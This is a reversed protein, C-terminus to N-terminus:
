TVMRRRSAAFPFCFLVPLVLPRSGCGHELTELPPLRAYGAGVTGDWSSWTPDDSLAWAQLRAAAEAPTDEPYRSLVLAVSAAVAPTAASTGFFGAEGYISTSLGDPGAIDPKPDGGHTPGQSSFSEAAGGPYRAAWVAGVTFTLPNSGPDAIAGAGIPQHMEGGRAYLAFRTWADGAARRVQVYTWGPADAWVRASEEPTCPSTGPTQREETRGLLVGDASWVYADLDTDGCRGFQDWLVQLRSSGADFWVPLVESGGEFEHFGDRDTDRFSEIWHERASNGASSVFLVDGSAMEDVVANVPGTGDHFSNGYFSMSMSVVDVGQEVAWAGANELTTLGNVRVLDLRVGPAVDRITEACAVGHSAEEYEFTPRLTDMPVECSRHAQCDWTEFAGLENPRLEADYWQVDFVAVRVGRGDYGAAVWDSAGLATVAEHAVYTDVEPIPEPRYPTGDTPPEALLSGHASSALAGPWTPVDVRWGHELRDECEGASALAAFSLLLPATM